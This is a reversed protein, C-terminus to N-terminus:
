GKKPNDFYYIDHPIGKRQRDIENEVFQKFMALKNFAQPKRSTGDIFKFQDNRYEAEFLGVFFNRQDGFTPADKKGLPRITLIWKGITKSGIRNEELKWRGDNRIAVEFNKAYQPVVDIIERKFEM